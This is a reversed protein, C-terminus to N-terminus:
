RKVEVELNKQKNFRTHIQITGSLPIYTAYGKRNLVVVSGPKESSIYISEGNVSVNGPKKYIGAISITLTDKLFLTNNAELQLRITNSSDQGKCTLLTYQSDALANKSKGDDDYWTYASKKTSPYYWLEAKAKGYEETNNIFEITPIFSGERIFVPIKELSVNVDISKGGESIKHTNDYWKGAPLYVSRVTQKPQLIPAILMEDGWMFEDEIKIATTDNEFQYYLPRVLPEGYKAQRYSLTYNYPLLNYRLEIAHKAIQRYPTDILAAESPFSFAAPEIDYLATGHPRFIPTFTAFQLWRVYLENDGDGGAFGGADAHAYPIGSMSMGLMVPLQARLGSWNRGVDGSWPFIGYRQTGAFGSRNLSFLRKDPYTTAYKEYLMKTWTHGYLNHVEDASFLRKYGKEKLNHCINAPHTEPEGLDGWWAEVGVDMQKKYFSWFWEKTDKRFLDLLGGEGFYFNKLVFPQKVSDVAFYQTANNYNIAPKVVYPETILITKIGQEKFNSIMKAPAPWKKSNIWELNGMTGKVSDGFWFLDFIVADFPVGAEEMKSAINKVQAESSYGFRSMLNGLAWRPPIPQTGTLQHYSSLIEGYTEGKIIYVNLEGSVTGYQFVDPETKGIDAYGKAPNDFFLAYGTSSTFFPVSYNLNEEGEGYGYAPSNYLNLKHGRRNFPIAREGGGYIKEDAKLLFNFGVYNDKRSMVSFKCGAFSITDQQVQVTDNAFILLHGKNTRSTIAKKNSPRLIVADSINDNRKYGKPQYTIKIINAAYQQIGWKGSQASLTQGQTTVCIFYLLCFICAVITFKM